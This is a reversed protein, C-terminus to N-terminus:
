SILFVSCTMSSSSFASSGDSITEALGQGSCSRRRTPLRRRIVAAIQLFHPIHRFSPQGPMSPLPLASGGSTM